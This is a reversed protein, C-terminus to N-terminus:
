LLLFIVMVESVGCANPIEIPTFDITIPTMPGLHNEMRTQETQQLLRRLCQAIAIHTTKLVANVVYNDLLLRRVLSKDASKQLFGFSSRARWCEKDQTKDELPEARREIEAVTVGNIGREAIAEIDASTPLLLSCKLSPAICLRAADVKRLAGLQFSTALYERHRKTGNEDRTFGDGAYLEILYMVSTALFMRANEPTDPAAMYADLMLRAGNPLPVSNSSLQERWRLVKEAAALNAFNSTKSTMLVHRTSLGKTVIHFCEGVYSAASNPRRREGVCYAM